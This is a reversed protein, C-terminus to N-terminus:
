GEFLPKFRCQMYAELLNLTPYDARADLLVNVRSTNQKIWTSIREDIDLSNLKSTNNLLSKALNSNSSNAHYHQSVYRANSNPGVKGVKLCNKQYFFMYVAMKGKPLRAPPHHPADLYEIHYDQASMRISSLRSVDIFNDMADLVLSYIM